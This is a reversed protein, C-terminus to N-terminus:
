KVSFRIKHIDSYHGVPYSHTCDALNNWIPFYIFFAFDFTKNENMAKNEVKGIEHMYQLIMCEINGVYERTYFSGERTSQIRIVSVSVTYHVYM